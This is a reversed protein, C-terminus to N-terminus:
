SGRHIGAEARMVKARIHSVVMRCTTEIGGKPSCSVGVTILHGNALVEVRGHNAGKKGTLDFTKLEYGNQDCYAQVAKKM